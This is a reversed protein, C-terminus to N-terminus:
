LLEKKFEMSDKITKYEPDKLMSETFYHTSSANLRYTNRRCDRPLNCRSVVFYRGCFQNMDPSWWGDGFNIHKSVENVKAGPVAKLEELTKVQVRDGVKYQSM